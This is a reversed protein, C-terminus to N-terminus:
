YLIKGVSAEGVLLLGSGGSWSFCEGRPGGWCVVGADGFGIEEGCRSDM